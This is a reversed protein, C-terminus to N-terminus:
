IYRIIIENQKCTESEYVLLILDMFLLFYNTKYIESYVADYDEM